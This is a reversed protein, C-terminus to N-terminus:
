SCNVESDSSALVEGGSGIVPYTQLPVAGEWRRLSTAISGEYKGSWSEGKGSLSLGCKPVKTVSEGFILDNVRVNSRIGTMSVCLTPIM